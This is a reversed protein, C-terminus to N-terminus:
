PRALAPRPQAHDDRWRLAFQAAMAIEVVVASGIGAGAHGSVFEFVGLAALIASGLAFGACVSARAVGAPAERVLYLTLALAAFLAANRRAVIGASEAYAVDWTHLLTAPAFMWVCFLVACLASSLQAMTKFRIMM